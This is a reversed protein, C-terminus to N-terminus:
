VWGMFKNWRWQEIEACNERTLSDDRSYEINSLPVGLLAAIHEGYSKICLGFVEGYAHIKIEKLNYTFGRSKFIEQVEKTSLISFWSYVIIKNGLKVRFRNIRELDDQRIPNSVTAIDTLGQNLASIPINSFYFLFADPQEVLWDIRQEWKERLELQREHFPLEPLKMQYCDPHVLVDIQKIQM